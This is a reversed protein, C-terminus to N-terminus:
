TRVFRELGLQKLTEILTAAKQSVNVKPPSVRWSVEGTTLRATKSDGELLQDRHAEAWGFFAELEGELHENIPAVEQAAEAKLGTIVDNLRLEADSVQRWRQGISELLAEAEARSKPVSVKVKNAKRKSM